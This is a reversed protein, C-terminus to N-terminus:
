YYILLSGMVSKNTKKLSICKIYINEEDYDYSNLYRRKTNKKLKGDYGRILFKIVPIIIM